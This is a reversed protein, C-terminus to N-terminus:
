LQKILEATDDNPYLTVLYLGCDSDSDSHCEDPNNHIYEQAQKLSDFPIYEFTTGGEYFCRYHYWRLEYRKFCMNFPCFEM